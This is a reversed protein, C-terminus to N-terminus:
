SSPHTAEHTKVSDVIQEFSSIKGDRVKWWHVFRAEFSRGTQKYTGQYWGLAAVQDGEGILSEPKVQYGDWETGMRMFVNELIADPGVYTGAYLFGAAETWEIDHAFTQLVAPIDGVAFAAYAETIIDVNSV